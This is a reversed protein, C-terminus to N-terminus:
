IVQLAGSNVDVQPGQMKVAAGQGNEVSVGQPALAVKQGMATSIVIGQVANGADIEVGLGSLKLTQGDATKLIIGGAQPTDDLTISTGGETQIILKKYPPVLADSPIDALPTGWWGGTWIPKEPDGKEFEMWVGSGVSPIAYFGMGQGAFPLCPTAWGSEQDGLVDNVKARIRGLFYPDKNDTVVGRYKGFFTASM